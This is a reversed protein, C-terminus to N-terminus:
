IMASEMPVMTGLAEAGLRITAPPVSSEKNKSTLERHSRQFNRSLPADM